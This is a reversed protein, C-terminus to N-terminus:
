RQSGTHRHRRHRGGARCTARRIAVSFLVAIRRGHLRHLVGFTTINTAPGTLLFAIAAGPSLGQFVMIAALPTSGSACVYLPLGLLAALPVDIGTPLSAFFEQTLYPALMSSLGIGLLIWAATNDVADGYGFRFMSWLRNGTQPTDALEDPLRAEEQTQASQGLAGILVGVAIALVAAALVRALAIETGMLQFTLLIAAIELEPTAILFAVAATFPLVARFTATM